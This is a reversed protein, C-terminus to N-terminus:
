AEQHCVSGVGQRQGRGGELEGTAGGIEGLHSCTHVTFLVHAFGKSGHLSQEKRFTSGSDSHLDTLVVAGRGVLERAFSSGSHQNSLDPLQSVTHGM